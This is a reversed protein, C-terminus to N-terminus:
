SPSPLRVAQGVARPPVRVMVPAGAAAGRRARVTVDVGRPVGCLAFEGGEVTAERRETVVVPPGGGLRAYAVQWTAEARAGDNPVAGDVSGRVMAEDWAAARAGCAQVLAAAESPVALVLPEEAEDAIRVTRAPPAARLLALAPTRARLLHAGPSVRLLTAVGDDATVAALSDLEVIADRVPAGGDAEVVRVRVAVRGREWLVAAGRRVESVDGGALRVGALEAAPPAVNRVGPVVAANRAAAPHAVVIPVRIVWRQVIWGGDPLRLFEVRGGANARAALRADGPVNVYRYSFERLEATARDLWLVGEVDAVDARPRAPSFAVGVWRALRVSDASPAAARFCHATAFADSLLVEADPAWYTWEGDSSAGHAVYGVVALSEPPLSAFPRVSPAMRTVSTDHVVRAGDADLTRESTTVRMVLAERRTLSEGLLAKRAEDWVRFAAAASDVQVRCTPRDSVRVESLRVAVSTLAVDRTTTGARLPLPGVTTPAYGIRLVRLTFPGTAPAVAAYAGDDRTAVRAVTRGGSDVLLVIAGPVRVGAATVIGRVTQAGLNSCAALMLCSAALREVRM